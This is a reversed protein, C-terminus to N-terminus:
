RKDCRQLFTWALPRVRGFFQFCNGGSPGMLGRDTALLAVCAVLMVLKDFAVESTWTCSGCGLRACQPQDARSGHYFCVHVHSVELAESSGPNLVVQSLLHWCERSCCFFVVRGKDTDCPESSGPFCTHLDDDPECVCSSVGPLLQVVTVRESFCGWSCGCLM